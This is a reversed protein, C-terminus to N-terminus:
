PRNKLNPPPNRPHLHKDRNAKKASVLQPRGELFGSIDDNKPVGWFGSIESSLFLATREITQKQITGIKRGIEVPPRKSAFLKTMNKARLFTRHYRRGTAGDTRLKAQSRKAQSPKVQRGSVSTVDALQSGELAQLPRPAPSAFCM